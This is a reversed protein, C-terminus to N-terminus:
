GSGPGATNQAVGGSEQRGEQSRCTCASPTQQGARGHNPPGPPPPIAHVCMAHLLGPPCLYRSCGDHTDAVAAVAMIPTWNSSINCTFTCCVLLWYGACRACVPRGYSSCSHTCPTSCGRLLQVQRRAGGTVGGLGWGDWLTPRQGGGEGGVSAEQGGFFPLLRM